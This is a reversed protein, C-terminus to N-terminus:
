ATEERELARLRTRMARLIAAMKLDPAADPNGPILKVTVGSSSDAAIQAGRLTETQGVDTSLDVLVRDGLHYHEGFRMSRVDTADLEFSASAAAEVLAENGRETLVAAAAEDRADLFVERKRGWTAAVADDKVRVFLRATGQGKGGVIIDTGTPANNAHKWARLTGMAQSLRVRDSRDVGEFFSVRMTARLSSDDVLGVKIGLGAADVATVLEMVPQFRANVTFSGGRGLSADVTLNDARRTVMNGHLVTRLVTEAAGQMRFREPQNTLALAPNPWALVDGLLAFAELGGVALVLQGREDLGPEMSEVLGTVRLDRWDFTWVDAPAVKAAWRDYPMTLTWTGAGNYRPQLDLGSWSPIVAVLRYGPPDARWLKVTIPVGTPADATV